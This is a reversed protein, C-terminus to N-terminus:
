DNTKEKELIGQAIYYAEAFGSYVPENLLKDYLRDKLDEGEPTINGKLDFIESGWIKYGNEKIDVMINDVVGQIFPNHLPRDVKSDINKDM